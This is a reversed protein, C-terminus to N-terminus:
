KASVKLVYVARQEWPWWNRYPIKKVVQLRILEGGRPESCAVVYETKIKTSITGTWWVHMRQEISREVGPQTDVSKPRKKFMWWPYGGIFPDLHQQRDHYTSWGDFAYGANVTDAPIGQKVLDFGAMFSERSLAHLDHSGAVSYYVFVAMCIGYRVRHVLTPAMASEGEGAENKQRTQQVVLCFLIIATPALLLLHRDFLIPATALLYALQLVFLVGTMTTALWMREREITTEPAPSSAPENCKVSALFWWVALRNVFAVLGLAVAASVIGGTIRGWIPIREGIIFENASFYGFTTVVNHMYPFVSEHTYFFYGIANVVGWVAAITVIWAIGTQPRLSRWRVGIALPLIFGGLYMLLSFGIYPLEEWPPHTIFHSIAKSSVVFTHTAGHVQQYWFTFNGVVLAFPAFIPILEGWHWGRECSGGNMGQKKQQRRPRIWMLGLTIGVAAPVLVGNQRILFAEGAAFSGASLWLARRTKALLGRIFCFLAVTQWAVAPVDTMFMWVHVFYLPNFILGVVAALALNRDVRLFDFLRLMAWSGCLCTAGVSIKTVTFSFGFTKTFLAGWFLLGVLSMPNWDLIRLEGREHLGELSKVYAWDDLIAYEGVPWVLFYSLALLGLVILENRRAFNERDFPNWVSM